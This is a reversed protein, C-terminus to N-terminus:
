NVTIGVAQHIWQFTNIIWYHIGTIKKQVHCLREWNRMMLQKQYVITQIIHAELLPAVVDGTVASAYRVIVEKLSAWLDTNNKLKTLVLCNDLQVINKDPRYEVQIVGGAHLDQSFIFDGQQELDYTGLSHM